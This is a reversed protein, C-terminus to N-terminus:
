TAGTSSGFQCLGYAGVCASFCAFWFTTRLKAIRLFSGSLM